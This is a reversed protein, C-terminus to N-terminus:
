SGLWGKLSHIKQGQVARQKMIAAQKEAWLDHGIQFERCESSCFACLDGYMFVESDQAMRKKCYHCRELFGGVTRRDPESVSAPSFVTWINRSSAEAAADAEIVEAKGDYSASATSVKSTFSEIRSRKVSM